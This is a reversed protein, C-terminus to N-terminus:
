LQPLEELENNDVKFFRLSTTYRFMSEPIVCLKNHTLYVDLLNSLGAFAEESLYRIEHDLYISYISPVNSFQFHAITKLKNYELRIVRLQLLGAFDDLHLSDIQNHSASM